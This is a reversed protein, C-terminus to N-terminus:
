KSLEDNEYAIIIAVATPSTYNFYKKLEPNKFLWRKFKTAKSKEDDDDKGKAIQWAVYSALTVMSGIAVRVNTNQANTKRKLAEKLTKMGADTRLDVKEYKALQNNRVMTILSVPNLGAKELSLVIWNSGGGVFPSMINNSFIQEIKYHSAKSWNKQKIADKVKKDVSANYNKLQVSLWNNAEHGLDFGASTHATEYAITLQEQTIKGNTVLSTKVLSDALRIVSENNITLLEKGANVNVENILELAKTKANEFSQGTLSESVYKIAHKKSMAGQKNTDSTLITVLNNVLYQNTQLYKFYSDASELHMKGMLSSVVRHYNKNKSINNILDEIQGRSALNSDVKGYSLGGNANIDNLIAKAVIGRQNKLAKTDNGLFINGTKTYVRQVIGSLPNQIIQGLSHLVMRQSINMFEQTVTVAKSKFNGKKFAYRFMITNVQKQIEDIKTDVFMPDLKTAYLESLAKAQEKLKVYTQNDFDNLGLLSNLLNDYETANKDFLGLNYLEAIRQTTAKVNVKRVANRNQLENLSKEVINARLNNYESILDQQINSIDADSYGQKKLTEEVNKKINGVSGEEGALQKWDLVNRKEKVKNGNEDKKTVTIERGFGADILANKVIQKTQLQEKTDIGQQKFEDLVDTRFLNENKWEKGYKEKIYNIGIEIADAIEVGAKISNKIVTIGADILAIPIGVQADYVKNRLKKQFGELAKITKEAKARRNSPLKKYIEDIQKEVGALILQQLDSSVPNKEQFEAENNIADADSELAREILRKQEVETDSFMLDTTESTDYGYYAMNQLKNMNLAQGISKSYDQRKLQVLDFQKKITIDDANAVRKDRLDNELSNYILAVNAPDLQFSDVYELIKYIYNDGFQEKAKEIINQGHAFAELLKIKEYSQDTTPAEGNVRETTEGSLFKGFTQSSPMKVAMDEFSDKEIANKDIPKKTEKEAVPKPETQPKEVVINAKQAFANIANDIDKADFKDALEKRAIEIAKSLSNGAMRAVKIADILANFVQPLFPLTVSLNNTDLKLNDLWDLDDKINDQNFIEKIVSKNKPKDKLVSDVEKIVEELQANNNSEAKGEIVEVIPEIEEAKRDDAVFEDVQEATINGNEIEENIQSFIDFQNSDAQRAEKQKVQANPIDITNIKIVEATLDKIEKRQTENLNKGFKQLETIRKKIQSERNKLDQIQKVIEVENSGRGVKNEFNLPENQNFEQIGNVRNNLLQSFEQYTKVKDNKLLYEFIEEEHANTLSKFEARAKGAWEAIKKSIDDSIGENSNSFQNLMSMAKGKPNLHAYAYIRTWSAGYL